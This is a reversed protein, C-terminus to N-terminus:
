KLGSIVPHPGEKYGPPVVPKLILEKLNIEASEVESSNESLFFNM